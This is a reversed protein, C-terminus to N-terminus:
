SAHNQDGSAIYESKDVLFSSRDVMVMGTVLTNLSLVVELAGAGRAGCESLCWSCWVKWFSWEGGHSCVGFCCAISCVRAILKIM